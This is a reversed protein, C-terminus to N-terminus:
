EAASALRMPAVTSLSAMAAAYFRAAAEAEAKARGFAEIWERAVNPATAALAALDAPSKQLVTEAIRALQVEDIGSQDEFSEIRQSSTQM